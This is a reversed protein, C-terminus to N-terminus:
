GNCGKKMLALLDENINILRANACTIISRVTDPAGRMAKNYALVAPHRCVLGMGEFESTECSQKELANFIEDLESDIKNGRMDTEFEAKALLDMVTRFNQEKKPKEMWTYLFLATLLLREANPWFPDSANEGEKTTNAFLNTILKQIDTESKVYMFPNYHNSSAMGNADLLNLVKVVYGAEKLMEGCSQLLEGKPDTIIFSGSQQMLVPRAVFQSKGAGSGGVVLMNLNLGPIRNGNINISLNRSIPRNETNIYYDSISKM